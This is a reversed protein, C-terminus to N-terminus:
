ITNILGRFTSVIIGDSLVRPNINGALTSEFTPEVPLPLKLLLTQSHRVDVPPSGKERKIHRSAVLNANSLSRAFPRLLEWCQQTQTPLPTCVSAVVGLM